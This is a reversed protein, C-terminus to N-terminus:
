ALGLESYHKEFECIVQDIENLLLTVATNLESSNEPSLAKKELESVLSQLKPVGCFCCAGLLKHAKNAIEVNNGEHLLQSFETKVKPLDAAFAALYEKALLKNGSVKQICLQWNIACEKEAELLQLLTTLLQKENIPKHLCIDFAGQGTQDAHLNGSSNATIAIIPTSHNQTCQARIKESTQIGDLNPMQLDLLILDYQRNRCANVADLGDQVLDLKALSGLISKLLMQNILVILYM